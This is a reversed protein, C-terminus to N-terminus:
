GIQGSRGGRGAVELGGKEGKLQSVLLDRTRLSLLQEMRGRESMGLMLYTVNRKVTVNGGAVEAGENRLRKTFQNEMVDMIQSM